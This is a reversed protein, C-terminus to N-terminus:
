LSKYQGFHIRQIVDGCDNFVRQVNEADVACTFHIYCCHMEHFCSRLFEDRIFYKARTVQRDEGPEPMADEPTTYRAFHPFYDELKHKGALVKEALLDQKNLFVIFPLTQLGPSFLMKLRPSWLIKRFFQLEEQLKIAKDSWHLTRLNYSSSDVMFLVATLNDFFQTWKRRGDVFRQIYLHLYVKDVQLKAEPIGFTWFKCRLLDQDSPTYEEQKIIDLKDLFYQACGILHYEHSREFCAKVGEDQWLAKTHEYFEPPFDFDPQSSVNLIYDIRFQNEPNALEVPPKLSEMARVITEIAERINNKIDQTRMKREEASFGDGELIKMQKLVTNKGSEELGMVLLHHTAKFVEKDMKLQKEVKKHTKRREKEEKREEETKRNGFCGMKHPVISIYLPHFPFLVAALPLFSCSALSSCSPCLCVSLSLSSPSISLPFPLTEAERRRAHLWAPALPVSASISPSLLSPPLSVPLPLTEAERRRKRKM